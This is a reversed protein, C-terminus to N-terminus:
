KTLRYIQAGGTSTRAAVYVTGDPVVAIGTAAGTIGSPVTSTVVGLNASIRVLMIAGGIRGLNAPVSGVCYINGSSDVTIPGPNGILAITSVKGSNTIKRIANNGADAVYVNGSSDVAVDTPNSFSAATGTGDTLGAVGSGAMTQSFGGPLFRMIRHGSPDAAYLVGNIGVAIGSKSFNVAPTAISVWNEVATQVTGGQSLVHISLASQGAPSTISLGQGYVNGSADAALGQWDYPSNSGQLTTLMGNAKVSKLAGNDSTYVNGNPDSALRGNGSIIASLGMGDTVPSVSSASGVLASAVSPGIYTAGSAPIATSVLNTATATINPPVTVVAATGTYLIANNGSLVATGGASEVTTGPPVYVSDLNALTFTIGTLPFAYTLTSTPITTVPTVVSTSTTTTATTSSSTNVGANDSGGCAVLGAAAVSTIFLRLFTRM